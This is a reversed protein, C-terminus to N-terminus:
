MIRKERELEIFAKELPDIEKPVVYGDSNYFETTLNPCNIIEIKKLQNHYYILQNLQQCNNVIVLM